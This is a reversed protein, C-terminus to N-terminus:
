VVSYDNFTYNLVQVAVTENVIKFDLYDFKMNLKQFLPLFCFFLFKIMGQFNSAKLENESEDEDMMRHDLFCEEENEESVEYGHFDESKDKEAENEGEENNSRQLNDGNIKPSVVSQYPIELNSNSHLSGCNAHYLSQVCNRTLNTRENIAISSYKAISSQKIDIEEDDCIEGEELDDSLNRLM